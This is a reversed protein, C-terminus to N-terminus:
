LENSFYDQNIIVQYKKNKEFQIGEIQFKFSSEPNLLDNKYQSLESKIKNSLFIKRRSVVKIDSIVVSSVSKNYIEVNLKTQMAYVDSAQDLTLNHQPSIYIDLM